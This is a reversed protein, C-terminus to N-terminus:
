NDNIVLITMVRIDFYMSLYTYFGAIYVHIDSLRSILYTYMLLSIFIAFSVICMLM